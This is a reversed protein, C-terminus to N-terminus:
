SCKYVIFANKHGREIEHHAGSFYPIKVIILDSVQVHFGIYRNSSTSNCEWYSVGYKQWTSNDKIAVSHHMKSPMVYPLMFTHM